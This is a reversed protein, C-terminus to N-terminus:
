KKPKAPPTVKWGAARLMNVLREQRPSPERVMGALDQWFTSSVEDVKAKSQRPGTGNTARGDSLGVSQRIQKAAEARERATNCDSAAKITTVGKRKDDFEVKHEPELAILLSQRLMMRVNREQKLTIGSGKVIDMAMNFLRTANDAVNSEGDRYQALIDAVKALKSTATGLSTDAGKIGSAIDAAHAKSFKSDTM